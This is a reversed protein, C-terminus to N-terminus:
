SAGSDGSDKEGFAAKRRRAMALAKALSKSKPRRRRAKLFSQESLIREGARREIFANVEGGLQGFVVEKSLREMAHGGTFSRAGIIRRVVGVVDEACGTTCYKAACVIEFVEQLSALELPQAAVRALARGAQEVSAVATHYRLLQRGMDVVMGDLEALLVGDPRRASRLFLRGEEIARQAPGLSLAALLAQHWTQQFTIISLIDPHDLGSVLLQSEDLVLDHFTVRRTDSDQMADPFLLPGVEIQPNGGEAALSQARGIAEQGKITLKDMRFTM